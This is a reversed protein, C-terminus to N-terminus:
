KKAAEQEKKTKLYSALLTKALRNTQVLPRSAPCAYSCCGCEMCINVKLEALTELDRREYASEIEGPMLHFPCHAVCRGCKICATPTPLVAEEEPFALIANTNKLIPQELNPVAIGMMPGGYLIKKPESKFGNCFAFVDAMSTGIPAIVNKPTKVAPGDVTICKKILPVGYKVYRAISALTTVNIVICGVDLPLKGEPVIRRICNHIIVKEGGQPYVCPLTIVEMGTEYTTHERFKAICKPKNEEIAFIVRPVHLYKQLLRAGEIVLKPNDLMTRTDSTIYPECEAGNVIVTDVTNLDKITLKASTPFGAGGLGVIGSDTMAQLFDETDNIVPPKLDPCRTMQGDSEIVIVPVKRGQSNLMEDIKKVKGSVSAHVPSSVFGGVEAIRQGVTVLDGAKVLPKAPAGIHMSVPITVVSPPDMTVTAAGATNKRHPVHVGHLKKFAM